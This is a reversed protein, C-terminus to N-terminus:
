GFKGLKHAVYGAGRTLNKHTSGGVKIYRGTTPNLVKEVAIPIEEPMEQVENKEEGINLPEKNMELIENDNVDIRTIARPKIFEPKNHIVENNLQIADRKADEILIKTPNKINDPITMPAQIYFPYQPVSQPVNIFVSHGSTSNKKKNDNNNRKSSKKKNNSNIKINTIVVNKNKNKNIYKKNKKM